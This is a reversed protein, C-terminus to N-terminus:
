QLMSINGNCFITGSEKGSKPIADDQLLHFASIYIVLIKSGFEQIIKNEIM